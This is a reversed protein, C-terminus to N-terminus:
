TDEGNGLRRRSPLKVQGHAHVDQNERGASENQGELVVRLPGPGKLDELVVPGFDLLPAFPEQLTGKAMDLRPVETQDEAFCAHGHEGIQLPPSFRAGGGVSELEM